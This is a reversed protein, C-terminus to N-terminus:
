SGDSVSVEPFLGMHAKADGLSFSCTNTQFVDVIQDGGTSKALDLVRDQTEKPLGDLARRLSAKRMNPNLAAMFATEAILAPFDVMFVEGKGIVRRAIVGKGKNPIDEVTYAPGDGNWVPGPALNSLAVVEDGLAATGVLGAATEPTTLIAV